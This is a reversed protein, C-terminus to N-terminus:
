LLINSSLEEAWYYMLAQTRGRRIFCRIELEIDQENGSGDLYGVHLFYGVSSYYKKEVPTARIIHKLPIRIDVSHKASKGKAALHFANDKIEITGKQFHSPVPISGGCYHIRTKIKKM